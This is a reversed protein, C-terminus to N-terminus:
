CVFRHHNTTGLACLCSMSHNIAKNNNNLKLVRNRARWDCMVCDGRGILFRNNSDENVKEEAEFRM